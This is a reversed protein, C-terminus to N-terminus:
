DNGVTIVNLRKKEQRLNLAEEDWRRRKDEMEM